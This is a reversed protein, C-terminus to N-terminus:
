PGFHLYYHFFLIEYSRCLMLFIVLVYILIRLCVERLFVIFFVNGALKIFGQEFMYCVFEWTSDKNNILFLLSSHQSTEYTKIGQIDIPIDDNLHAWPSDSRTDYIYFGGRCCIMSIFYLAFINIM